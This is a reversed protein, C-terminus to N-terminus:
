GGRERLEAALHGVAAEVNRTVVSIEAPTIKDVHIGATVCVNVGTAAHLKRAAALALRDEKHPAIRLTEAYPEGDNTRGALAATGIHADGGGIHVYLDTGWCRWSLRVLTRGVGTEFQEM